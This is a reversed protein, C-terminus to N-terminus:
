VSPITIVSPTYLSMPCSIQTCTKRLNESELLGLWDTDKIKSNEQSAPIRLYSSFKRLVEHLNSRQGFNGVYKSSTVVISFLRCTRTFMSAVNTAINRISVKDWTFKYFTVLIEDFSDRDGSLFAFMARLYPDDLTRLLSGCTKRWLTQREETYGALAMAVANYNPQGPSLLFVVSCSHIQFM